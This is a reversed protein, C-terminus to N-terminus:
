FQYGGFIWYHWDRMAVRTSKNRSICRLINLPVISESGNHAVIVKMDSTCENEDAMSMVVVNEGIKIPYGRQAKICSAEFPFSLKGELYYYWGM